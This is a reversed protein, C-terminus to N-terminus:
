PYAVLYAKVGGNEHLSEAKGIDWGDPAYVSATGGGSVATMPILQNASGGTAYRYIKYFNM